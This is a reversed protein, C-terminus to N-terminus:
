MYSAHPYNTIFKELLHHTHKTLKQLIQIHKHHSLVQSICICRDDGGAIIIDIVLSSTEEEDDHKEFLKVVSPHYPDFKIASELWLRVMDTHTIPDFSSMQLLDM